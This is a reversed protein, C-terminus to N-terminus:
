SGTESGRGPSGGTIGPTAGIVVKWSQIDVGQISVDCSRYMFGRIGHWNSLINNHM